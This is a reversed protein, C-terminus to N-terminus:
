STVSHNLNTCHSLGAHSSHENGTICLTHSKCIKQILTFYCQISVMIFVFVGIRVVSDKKGSSQCRAEDQYLLYTVSFTYPIVSTYTIFQILSHKPTIFEDTSMGKGFNSASTNRLITVGQEILDVSSM